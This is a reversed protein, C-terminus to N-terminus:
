STPQTWVVTNSTEDVVTVSHVTHRVAVAAAWKTGADQAIQETTKGAIEHTWVYGDQGSYQIVAKFM